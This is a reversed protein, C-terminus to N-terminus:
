QADQKERLEALRAMAEDRSLMYIGFPGGNAGTMSVSQADVYGAHNKLWFIHGAPSRGYLGREHFAELRSRTNKIVCSFDSGRREQDYLSQRDCFGLFVALGAVTPMEDSEFYKDIELSLEKATHYKPIRGLRRTVAV